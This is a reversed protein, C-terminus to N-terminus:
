VDSKEVKEEVKKEREEFKKLLNGKKIKEPNQHKGFYVNGQEGLSHFHKQTPTQFAEKTSSRVNRQVNKDSM